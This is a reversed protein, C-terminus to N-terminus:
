LLRLIIIIKMWKFQINGERKIYQELKSDASWKLENWLEGKTVNIDGISAYIEEFVKSPKPADSNDSCASLSIMFVFGM